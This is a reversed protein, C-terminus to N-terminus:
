RGGGLGPVASLDVGGYRLAAVVHVAVLLSLLLALWRHMYRWASLLGRVEEFHVLQLAVRHSRKALLFMHRIERAPIGEALGEARLRELERRLRFQSRVLGFARAL